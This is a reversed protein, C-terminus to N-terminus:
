SATPKDVIELEVEIGWYDKTPVKESSLYQLFRDDVNLNPAKEGLLSQESYFKPLFILDILPKEVNSLDHVLSTMLGAKTYMVSEPIFMKMKMKYVHKKPEFHSRLAEFQKAHKLITFLIQTSWERAETTKGHLRNGYYMSNVSITKTQFTIVQKM